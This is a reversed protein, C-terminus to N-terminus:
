LSDGATLDAGGSDLGVRAERLARILEEGRKMVKFILKESEDGYKGTLVEIREMAPTELPLFGYSEFISRLKDIVEMRPLVEEPLHDRM